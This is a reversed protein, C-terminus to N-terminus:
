NEKGKYRCHEHTPSKEQGFDGVRMYSRAQTLSHRSSISLLGLMYRMTQIPTDRTCGLVIRIGENQIRELRERQSRSLTLIGLGYEIVSLVVQYYILFLLRQELHTAAMTKLFALGRKCKQVMHEVHYMYSLSRDFTVGLYKLRDRREINQGNLTLTPLDTRAIKNNLSCWMVCAKEPNVRSDTENCWQSIENLTQQIDDIM